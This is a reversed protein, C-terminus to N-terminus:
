TGSIRTQGSGDANMVNIQGPVFSRSYTFAIKTGDPSWSPHSHQHETNEGAKGTLNTQESGDANMVYIEGSFDRNSTFVIKTGDPSWSPYSNGEPNDTLRTQGSGDANM